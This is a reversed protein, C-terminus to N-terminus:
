PQRGLYAVLRDVAPADDSIPVAPGIRDGRSAADPLTQRAFALTYAALDDGLEIHQGTATALDWGHTAVDVTTFGALVSGPMDGFPTPHASTLAGPRRVAALAAAAAEAYAASPDGGVLDTPPLGGPPTVHRPPSDGFLGEALWLTGIVHNLLERVSWESCPTRGELQGVGIGKVVDGTAGVVRDFAGFIEVGM